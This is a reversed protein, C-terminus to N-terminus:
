AQIINFFLLNELCITMSTEAKKTTTIPTKATKNILWDFFRKCFCMRSLINSMASM